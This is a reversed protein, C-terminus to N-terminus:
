NKLSAKYAVIQQKRATADAWPDLKESQKSMIRSIRVRVQLDPHLLGEVLRDPHKESVKLLISEITLSQETEIQDRLSLLAFLSQMAEQSAVTETESFLVDLKSFHKEFLADAKRKAELLEQASMTTESLWLSMQDADMFGMSRGLVTEESTDTIIYSPLSRVSWKKALDKSKDVDIVKVKFGQLQEQVKKSPWTDRKMLQCPGCWDATFYLLTYKAAKQETTTPEANIAAQCPLVLAIWLSCFLPHILRLKM